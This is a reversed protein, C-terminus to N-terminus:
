RPNYNLANTQLDKFSKLFNQENILNIGANLMISGIQRHSLSTNGSAYNRLFDALSPLELIEPPSVDESLALFAAAIVFLRIPQTVVFRNWEVQNPSRGFYYQLFAITQAENLNQFVAFTALDFYPDSMGGNVWDVLFFQKNVLMINLSNLDLHTPVNPLPYLQLLAELHEMAAKAEFLQSTLNQQTGKALFEHFRRFPSYAIPFRESSQHLKKLCHAFNALGDSDEFHAPTVTCGPIFEMIIGELQPDVFLVKPGVDIKGAQKAIIIQHMRAMQKAQPAFLRLVYSHEHANFRYLAAQSRGGKLAICPLEEPKLSGSSDISQIFDSIIRMVRLDDYVLSVTGM